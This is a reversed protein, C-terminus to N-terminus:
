PWLQIEYISGASEQYRNDIFVIKDIQVQGVSDIPNEKM